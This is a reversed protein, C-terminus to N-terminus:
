VFIADSVVCCVIEVPVYKEPFTLRLGASRISFAVKMCCLLFYNISLNFNKNHNSFNEVSLHLKRHNKLVCWVTLGIIDPESPSTAPLVSNDVFDAKGFTFSPSQSQGSHTFPISFSSSSM